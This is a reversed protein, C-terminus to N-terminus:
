RVGAVDRFLREIAENTRENDFLRRVRDRGARGFEALRDRDDLLSLVANVLAASNDPPILIGTEGDGVYEPIGGIRTAVV